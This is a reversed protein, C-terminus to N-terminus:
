IILCRIFRKCLALLSVWKRRYLSCFLGFYKYKLKRLERNGDTKEARKVASLLLGEHYLTLDKEEREALYAVRDLYAGILHLDSGKQGMISSKRQLYHYGVYPVVAVKECPYLVRHCIYEDEHLKGKPFRIERFLNRNFLKNCFIECFAYKGKPMLKMMEAGSLVGEESIQYQGGKGRGGEAEAYDEEFEYVFNCAAIQAGTRKVAEMLRGIMEPALYDDSDVFSLYEGRAEKIGTNRAESLGRNEQHIVRIREDLRAFEDCISGCRDPSGDDVLVINLNSYTQEVISTLCKRLYKEVGYVPVIVSVLPQATKGRMM